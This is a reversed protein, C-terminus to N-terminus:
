ILDIMFWAEPTRAPALKCMNMGFSDNPVQTRLLQGHQCFCGRRDTMIRLLEMRLDPSAATAPCRPARLSPWRRPAGRRLYAGTPEASCLRRQGRQKNCLAQVSDKSNLGCRTCLLQLCCVARQGLAKVRVQKGWSRIPCAAVFCAHQHEGTMAM